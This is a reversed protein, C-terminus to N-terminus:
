GCRRHSSAAPPGAQVVKFVVNSIVLFLVSRALSRWASNGPIIWTLIYATGLLQAAVLAIGMVTQWPGFAALVSFIIALGMVEDIRALPLASPMPQASKWLREWNWAPKM